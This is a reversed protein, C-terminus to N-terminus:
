GLMVSKAVDFAMIMIGGGPGLRLVKPGFGKYLASIGEQRAILSLSQMSWRYPSTEGPLVNRMRSVVVDFPNNLITGLVGGVVGCAFNRAMVKTKGAQKENDIRLPGKKMYWICGFYAGNWLGQRLLASELGTAFASVGEAKMIQAFCDPVTKYLGVNGPAQMRVKVVEFPAIFIIETMGALTGAAVRSQLNDAPLLKSYMANGTFKVSRKIPEQIAPALIGRYLRAVGGEAVIAKLSSLIGTKPRASEASLQIRTKVVDLPFMCLLELLGATAGAFITELTTLETRRAAM